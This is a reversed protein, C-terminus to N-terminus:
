AARLEELGLKALLGPRASLARQAASAAEQYWTMAAGMCEGSPAACTVLEALLGQGEAWKVADYGMASMTYAIELDGPGYTVLGHLRQVVQTVDSPNHFIGQGSM